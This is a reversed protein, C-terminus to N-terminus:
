TRREALYRDWSRRGGRRDGSRRDRVATNRRDREPLVGHLYARITVPLCERLEYFAGARQAERGLAADQVNSYVISRPAREIASMLYVLHLGNFADLRLNTVVLDFDGSLARARATSFSAHREVDAISRVAAELVARSADNPEVLLMQKRSGASSM